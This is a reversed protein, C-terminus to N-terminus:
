KLKIGNSVSQIKKKKLILESSWDRTTPKDRHILHEDKIVKSIEDVHSNGRENNDFALIFSIDKSHDLIEELSEKITEASAGMTCLYFDEKQGRGFERYFSMDLPSELMVVRNAKDIEGIELIGRRSGDILSEEEQSMKLIGCINNEALMKFYFIKDSDNYAINDQEGLWETTKYSLKRFRLLSSPDQPLQQWYNSIRIAEKTSAQVLIYEKPEPNKIWERCIKRYGLRKKIRSQIFNIITGNDGDDNANFFTYHNNEKDLGIVIEDETEDNRLVLASPSSKIKDKTYGFLTVFEALNITTKFRELEQNAGEKVRRLISRNSRDLEHKISKNRNDFGREVREILHNISNTIRRIIRTFVKRHKRKSLQRETTRYNHDDTYEFRKFSIDHQKSKRQERRSERISKRKARKNIASNNRHLRKKNRENSYENRRNVAETVRRQVSERETTRRNIEARVRDDRLTRRITEKQIDERQSSDQRRENEQTNLNDRFEGINSGIKSQKNSLTRTRNIGDIRVEETSSERNFKVGRRDEQQHQNRDEGSDGRSKREYLKRNTSAQQEIIRDLEARIEGINRKVGRGVTQSKRRVERELNEWGTYSEAYQKGKMTVPFSEGKKNVVDSHLFSISEKGLNYIEYGWERMQEILDHRNCIVEEEILLTIAKDIDKKIKSIESSINKNDYRSTLEQNDKFSSLNYKLNIYEQFLDKKHFDRTVFYPNYSLGTSTELRPAIYHLETRNKDEHNIWLDNYQYSLLGCFFTKRWEDIIELKIDDSLTESFTLVGSSWSWKNQRSIYKIFALTLDSDGRLVRSTGEEVRENLLYGITIEAGSYTRGGPFTKNIM